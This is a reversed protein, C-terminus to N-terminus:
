LVAIASFFAAYGAITILLYVSVKWNKKYDIKEGDKELVEFFGRFINIGGLFIFPIMLINLIFYGIHGNCIEWLKIFMMIIPFIGGIIFPLCCGIYSYKEFFKKM